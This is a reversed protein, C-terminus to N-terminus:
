FPKWKARLVQLMSSTATGGLHQHTDNAQPFAAYNMTAGAMSGRHHNNVHLIGYMKKERHHVITGPRAKIPCDDLMFSVHHASGEAFDPIAILPESWRARRIAARLTQVEPMDYLVGNPQHRFRDLLATAARLIEPAAEALMEPDIPDNM